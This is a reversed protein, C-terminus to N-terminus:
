NGALCVLGTTQGGLEPRKVLDKVSNVGVGLVQWAIGPRGATELVQFTKEVKMAQKFTDEVPFGEQVELCLRTCRGRPDQLM